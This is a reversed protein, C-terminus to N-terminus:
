PENKEQRSQELVLRAVEQRAKEQAQQALMYQAARNQQNHRVIYIAYLVLFATIPLGVIGLWAWSEGGFYGALVALLTLGLAIFASFPGLRDVLWWVPGTTPVPAPPRDPADPLAAEDALRRVEAEDLPPKVPEM